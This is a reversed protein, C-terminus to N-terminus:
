KHGSSVYTLLASKFSSLITPHNSLSNQTQITIHYLQRNRLPLCLFITEVNSSGSPLSIKDVYSTLVLRLQYLAAVMTESSTKTNQDVTACMNRRERRTWLYTEKILLVESHDSGCPTKCCSYCTVPIRDRSRVVQTKSQHWSEPSKAILAWIDALWSWAFPIVTDEKLM